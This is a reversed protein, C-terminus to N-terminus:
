GGQFPFVPKRAELPAQMNNDSGFMLHSGEPETKDCKLNPLDAEAEVV